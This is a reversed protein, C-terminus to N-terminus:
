AVFEKLEEASMYGSKRKKVENDEILLSTPVGRIAFEATISPEADIDVTTVKIGLDTTELVKSLMKCPQCWAAKFVVLSKM